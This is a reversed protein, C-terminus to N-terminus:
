NNTIRKFSQITLVYFAIGLLLGIIVWGLTNDLHKKMWEHDIFTSVIIVFITILFLRFGIVWYVALFSKVFGTNSKQAYIYYSQKITVIILLVQIILGLLEIGLDQTTLSETSNISAISFVIFNALLYSIGKQDSLEGLKIESELASLKLWYM